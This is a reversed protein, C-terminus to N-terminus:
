IRQRVTNRYTYLKVLLRSVRRACGLGLSLYLGMAVAHRRASRADKPSRAPAPLPAWEGNVERADVIGILASIRFPSDCLIWADGQTVVLDSLRGKGRYAIRHAFLFENELCAVVAGPVYEKEDAARILIRAGEPLTPHMSDGKVTSEMQRGTKKWLDRVALM